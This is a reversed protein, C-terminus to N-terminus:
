ERAGMRAGSASKPSTGANNVLAHLQGGLRERILPLNCEASDIDELDM